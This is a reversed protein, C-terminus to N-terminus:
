HMAKPLEALRVRLGERVRLGDGVGERERALGVGVVEGDCFEVGEAVCVQLVLVVRVDEGVGEEKAVFDCDKVGVALGVCVQLVVCVDEDM